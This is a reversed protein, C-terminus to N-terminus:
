IHKETLLILARRPWRDAIILDAVNCGEGNRKQM